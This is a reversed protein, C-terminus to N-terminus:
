RKAFVLVIYKARGDQDKCPTWHTVLQETTKVVPWIPKSEQSKEEVLAEFDVSVAKGRALCDTVVKKYSKLVSSSSPSRKALVKFIEENVIPERTERTRSLHLLGAASASYHAIDFGARDNVKLVLYQM